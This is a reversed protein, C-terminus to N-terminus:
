SQPIRLLFRAQRTLGVPAARQAQTMRDPAYHRYYHYYCHLSAQQEYHKSTYANYCLLVISALRM